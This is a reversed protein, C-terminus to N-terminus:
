IQKPNHNMNVLFQEDLERLYKRALKVADVIAKQADKDIQFKWRRVRHEEPIDGFTMEKRIADSEEDSIEMMGKQWEVKRIEDLILREPTDVLCYVLEFEEKGTLAMYGQGQWFYADTPIEVDFFPFTHINWPCKVDALVVDEDLDTEGSLYENYMRNKYFELGNIYDVDLGWGLVRNAMQLATCEEETGKTMQKTSIVKRRDYTVEIWLQKLYTKAGGSLTSISYKPAYLKSVLTTREEAQKETLKVKDMLENLRVTQKETIPANKAGALINSLGSCRFQYDSWEHINKGLGMM